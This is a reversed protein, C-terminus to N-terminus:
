VRKGRQMDEKKWLEKEPENKKAVGGHGRTMAEQFCKQLLIM